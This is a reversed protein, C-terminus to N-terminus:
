CPGSCTLGTCCRYDRYLQYGCHDNTQGCWSRTSCCAAPCKAEQGNASHYSPGCHKDARCWDRLICSSSESDKSVSGPCSGPGHKECTRTRTRTGWGCGANCNSWSGWTGWIVCLGTRELLEDLREVTWNDRFVLPGPDNTYWFSDPNDNRCDSLIDPAVVGQCYCREKRSLSWQLEGTQNHRKILFCVHGKSSNIPFVIIITLILSVNLDM